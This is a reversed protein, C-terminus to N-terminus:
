CYPLVLNSPHLVVRAGDLALSRCAEPFFWDFCIMVGLRTPGRFAEFSPRAVDFTVKERDFLHAKRYVHAAGSPLFTAASNYVGRGAREAFGACLTLRNRRALAALRSLMPGQLPESLEWAERRSAFVYGTTCLEPLVVVADRTSSLANEIVAVNDNPAGFR